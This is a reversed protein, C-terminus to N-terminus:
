SSFEPIGAWERLVTEHEPILGAEGYGQLELIEAWSIREQEIQQKLYELRLERKKVIYEYPQLASKGITHKGQSTRYSVGTIYSRMYTSSGKITEIFEEMVSSFRDDPGLDLEVTIVRKAM